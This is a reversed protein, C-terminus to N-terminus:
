RDLERSGPHWQSRERFPLTPAFCPLLRSSYSPALRGFRGPNEPAQGLRGVFGRHAGKAM